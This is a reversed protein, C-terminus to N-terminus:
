VESGVEPCWMSMAVVQTELRSVDRPQRRSGNQPWSSVESLEPMLGELENVMNKLVAEQQSTTETTLLSKTSRMLQILGARLRILEDMREPSENLLESLPVGLAKQWKVLDDLSIANSKEQRRLEATPIGTRNSISRLSIGATQRVHPLRHALAEPKHDTMTRRM